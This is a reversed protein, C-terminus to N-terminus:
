GIGASSDELEDSMESLEVSDNVTYAYRGYGVMTVGGDCIIGYTKWPDYSSFNYKYLGKRVHSMSGADVILSNDSLDVIDITPSLGTQPVDDKIFTATIYM